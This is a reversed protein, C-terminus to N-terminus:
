KINSRWGIKGKEDPALFMDAILNSLSIAIFTQTFRAFDWITSTLFAALTQGDTPNHVIFPNQLRDEKVIYRFGHISTAGGRHVPADRLSVNYTIFKYNEEIYKALSKSDGYGGKPLGKIANVVNKGSIDEGNEKKKHWGHVPINYIPSLSTALSDLAAKIHTLFSDVESILDHKEYILDITSKAKRAEKLLQKSLKAELTLYNRRHHNAKFLSKIVNLITKFYTEEVKDKNFKTHGWFKILEFTTTDQVILLVDELLFSDIEDQPELVSKLVLDGTSM